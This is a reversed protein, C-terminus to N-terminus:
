RAERLEPDAGLDDHGVLDLLMEGRARRTGDGLADNEEALLERPVRNRAGHRLQIRKARVRMERERDVRHVDLHAELDGGVRLRVHLVKARPDGIRRAEELQRRQELGQGFLERDADHANRMKGARLGRGRVVHAREEVVALSVAAREPDTPADLALDRQLVRALEVFLEGVREHRERM